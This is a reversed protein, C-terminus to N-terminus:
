VTIKKLEKSVLVPNQKLPKEELFEKKLLEIKGFFIGALVTLVGSFAFMIPITSEKTLFSIPILFLAPIATTLFSLLGWAKEDSGEKILKTYITNKIPYAIGDFLGSITFLIAILLINESFGMFVTVLGSFLYAYAVVYSKKKGRNLKSLHGIFMPAIAYSVQYATFVLGVVDLRNPAVKSAILIGLFSGVVNSTCYFLIDAILFFVTDRSLLSHLDIKITQIKKFLAQSMKKLSAM